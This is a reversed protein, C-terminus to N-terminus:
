GQALREDDSRLEDTKPTLPVPDNDDTEDKKPKRDRMRNLVYGSIGGILTGLVENSLKGALGLILISATVLLVTCTELIIDQMGNRVSGSETTARKKKLSDFFLPLIFLALITGCFLPLGLKIALINIQEEKENFKDKAIKVIEECTRLYGMLLKLDAKVRDEEQEITTSKLVNLKAILVDLEIKFETLNLANLMPQGSTEYGDNIFKKLQRSKDLENNLTRTFSEIMAEADVTAASYGFPSSFPSYDAYDYSNYYIKKLENRLSNEASLHAAIQEDTTAVTNIVKMADEVKGANVSELQVQYKDLYTLYQNEEQITASTKTLEKRVADYQDKLLMKDDSFSEEDATLVEGTETVIRTTDITVQAYNSAPALLFAVALLQAFKKM